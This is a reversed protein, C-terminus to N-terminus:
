RPRIIKTLEEVGQEIKSDSMAAYGLLMYRDFDNPLDCVNLDRGSFTYVGIRQKSLEKTLFGAPPYDDPLKWTLHMGGSLGSLVVDGFQSKLADILSNRRIMYTQRIQKLHNAFSGHEIFDALIAQDLWSSGNDLLAKITRAPAVLNRPLVVYGLRLGPGISTSFPGINLVNGGADLAKLAPQPSGEYRFDGDFDDEVIYSGYKAAWAVLEKRRELSMTTGFFTQHSPTVYVFQVQRQPLKQVEIGQSDVPASTM